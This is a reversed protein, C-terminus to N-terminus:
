EEQHAMVWLDTVTEIAMAVKRVLDQHALVQVRSDAEAQDMILNMVMTEKATVVSAMIAKDMTKHIDVRLAMAARLLDM